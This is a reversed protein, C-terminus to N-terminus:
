RSCNGPLLTEEQSAQSRHERDDNAFGRRLRKAPDGDGDLDAVCYGSWCDIDEDCPGNFGSKHGCVGNKCYLNPKCEGCVNQCGNDGCEKGECDSVCEICTGSSTCSWGELCDGCTGGEGDPGCELWQCPDGQDPPLYSERYSGVADLDPATLPTRQISLGDRQDVLAPEDACGIFVASVVGAMLLISTEWKM